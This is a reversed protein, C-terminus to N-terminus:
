DGVREGGLEKGKGMPWDPVPMDNTGSWRTVGWGEVGDFRVERGIELYMMSPSFESM